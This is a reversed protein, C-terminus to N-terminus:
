FYSKEEIIVSGMKENITRKLRARAKNLHITQTVLQIYSADNEGIEFIQEMLLFIEENVALLRDREEMPVKSQIEELAVGILQLEQNISVLQKHSNMFKKKVELITQRDIADGISTPISVLHDHSM